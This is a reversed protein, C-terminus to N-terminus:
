RLKLDRIHLTVYNFHGGTEDSKILSKFYTKVRTGCNKNKHEM